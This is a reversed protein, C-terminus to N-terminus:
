TRDIFEDSSLKEIAKQLEEESQDFLELAPKFWAHLHEDDVVVAVDGAPFLYVEDPSDVESGIERILARTEPREVKQALAKASAEDPVDTEARDVLAHLADSDSFRNAVLALVIREELSVDGDIHIALRIMGRWWEFKM